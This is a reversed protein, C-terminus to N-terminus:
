RVTVPGYREKFNLYDARYRRGPGFRYTIRRPGISRTETNRTQDWSEWVPRGDPMWRMYAPESWRIEPDFGVLYHTRRSQYIGTAYKPILGKVADAQVRVPQGYQRGDVFFRVVSVGNVPMTAVLQLEVSGQSELMGRFVLVNGSIEAQGRRAAQRWRDQEDKTMKDLMVNVFVGRRIRGSDAPDEHKYSVGAEIVSARDASLGPQSFGVYYNVYDYGSLLIVERPLTVRARVGFLAPRSGRSGPAAVQTVIIDRLPEDASRRPSTPGRTPLPVRAAATGGGGTGVDPGKAAAASVRSPVVGSVPVAGSQGPAPRSRTQRSVAGAVAPAWAGHVQDDPSRPRVGAGPSPERQDLGGRPLDDNQGTALGAGTGHPAAEIVWRPLAAALGLTNRVDAAGTRTGSVRHISGAVPTRPAGGGTAAGSSRTARIPSAHGQLDATVVSGPVQALPLRPLTWQRRALWAGLVPDRMLAGDGLYRFPPVPPRGPATRGPLDRELLWRVIKSRM